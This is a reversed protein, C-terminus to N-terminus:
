INHVILLKKLSQQHIESIIQVICIVLEIIGSSDTCYIRIVLSIFFFGSTKNIFIIYM